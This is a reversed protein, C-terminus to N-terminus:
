PWGVWLASTSSGQSSDGSHHQSAATPQGSGRGDTVFETAYVPSATALTLAAALMPVGSHLRM